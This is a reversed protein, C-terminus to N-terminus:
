PEPSGAGPAGLGASPPCPLVLPQSALESWRSMAARVAPSQFTMFCALLQRLSSAASKKLLKKAKKLWMLKKILISKELNELLVLSQRNFCLAHAHSREERADPLCVPHPLPFRPDPCPPHPHSAPPLPVRTSPVPVVPAPDEKGERCQVTETCAM